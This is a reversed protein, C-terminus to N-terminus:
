LGSLCLAAEEITSILLFESGLSELRVALAELATGALLHSRPDSAAASESGALMTVVCRPFARRFCGGGLTAVERLRGVVFAHTIHAEARPGFLLGGAASRLLTVSLAAGLALGFVILGWTLVRRQAPSFVPETPQM